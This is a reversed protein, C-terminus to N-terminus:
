NAGFPKHLLRYDDEIESFFTNIKQNIQVWNKRSYPTLTFRRKLEPNHTKHISLIETM